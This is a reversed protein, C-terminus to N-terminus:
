LINLIKHAICVLLIGSNKLSSKLANIFKEYKELSSIGENSQSEEFKRKHAHWMDRSMTQNHSLPLRPDSGCLALLIHRRVKFAARDRCTQEIYDASTANVVICKILCGLLM